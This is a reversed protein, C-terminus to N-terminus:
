PDNKLIMSASATQAFYIGYRQTTTAATGRIMIAIKRTTRMMAIDM